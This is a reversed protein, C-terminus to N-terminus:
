QDYRDQIEVACNECVQWCVPREGERFVVGVILGNGDNKGSPMSTECEACEGDPGVNGVHMILVKTNETTTAM